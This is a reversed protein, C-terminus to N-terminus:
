SKCGELKIKLGRQSELCYKFKQSKGGSLKELIKWANMGSSHACSSMTSSYKPDAARGICLGKGGGEKKWGRSHSLPSLKKKQARCFNHRIPLRLLLPFPLKELSICRGAYMPLPRPRSRVRFFFGNKGTPFFSLPPPGGGLCLLM